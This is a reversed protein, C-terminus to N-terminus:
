YPVDDSRDEARRVAGDDAQPLESLKDLKEFFGNM